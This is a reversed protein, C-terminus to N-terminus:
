DHGQGRTYKSADTRIKTICRCDSYQGEGRVICTVKEAMGHGGQYKGRRASLEQVLVKAWSM